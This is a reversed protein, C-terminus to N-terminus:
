QMIEILCKKAKDIGIKKVLDSIDKAQTNIPVMIEKSHPITKALNNSGYIGTKDNDYLIYIHKYHEQIKKIIASPITSLESQPAISEIEMEKLTMVDKLSKTIILTDSM